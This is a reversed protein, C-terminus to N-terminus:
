NGKLIRIGFAWPHGQQSGLKPIKRFKPHIGERAKPVPAPQQVNSHYHTCPILNNLVKEREGRNM